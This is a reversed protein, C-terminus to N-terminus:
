AVRKGEDAKEREINQKLELYDNTSIGEEDWLGALSHCKSCLWIGKNFDSNDWHHYVLRRTTNHCLECGDKPYDRKNLGRVVKDGYGLCHKRWWNRVRRSIEARHQKQYHNSYALKEEKHALYWKRYKNHIYPSAKM